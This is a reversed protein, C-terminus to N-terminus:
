LVKVLAVKKNILEKMEHALIKIPEESYTMDPQIKVKAPSIVHSPDSRYRRLMSVHFVNHIRDFKPPLALRYALPGIREIIEYPGIFRSSLKGKRGFRLVKKWPSVKLFVKDEVQFEIEKRKLDAYSKQRDSAAKLSDRIVKVKEETECIIDVGHIKKESLETQGPLFVYTNSYLTCVEQMLVCGLGNLSVDSYIVFEKGSEPQVLVPAETLLAKLLQKVRLTQLVIRLHDAHENENRSYELFDDIFVVVFRDLYLRFIRNMLDMFVAPANTLGFSMVLFEYHRYRTRFTTKPVDSDKVRLQYYGSRLDIKLFVTAVKLQDFLYDIRPLPYKNKITVKKLQQYDICLRLSGDKKKVFLVATIRTIGIIVDPTSAEERERIVYTKAPARAESKVTSDKTVGRSGSVNGPNCPPRGRSAPNNPRSNQVIDKKPKELCDKLYHDLSNCRFSAGNRMRYEGFHLKNCHKCRPKPNAVSGVSAASLAPSRSNLRQIGRDRRSYRLTRAEIEAQKKEKSLEEVKHERDVLVVFEKLELIRVLLKIDENLGEEFHKCM